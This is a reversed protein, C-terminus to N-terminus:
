NSLKWWPFENKIENLAHIALLKKDPMETIDHRAM